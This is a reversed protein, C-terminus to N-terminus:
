WSGSVERAGLFGALQEITGTVARATEANAPADPERTVNLLTLRQAKRDMALDISGILGDGYLVPMAYYGRTRKAAPTYMGITYDFNWLLRTRDRDCILNDFPSLLTTRPQWGGREITDLLPVDEAHLYWPGPLEREGDAVRVRLVEGAHELAALVAPLGPYRRRIFHLRIHAVRAVGLARLAILVARHVAEKESIAPSGVPLHREALDWWKENGRRRAVTIRGSLWLVQLLHGLANASPWGSSVWPAAVKGGFRRSPLPGHATLGTLVHDQLGQMDALWARRRGAEQSSGDVYSRMMVQHIPYHEVPVIAACHAWYEFLRRQGWLLRELDERDYSGLRSWLVLLHSRAVVSIPDLQVCGLAQVTEYIAEGDPAAPPPGALRQRSVALRRATEISIVREAM